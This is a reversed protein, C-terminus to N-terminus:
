PARGGEPSGGTGQAREMDLAQEALALRMRKSKAREKLVKFVIPLVSVFVIFVVIVHLYKDIQPITRGLYYGGLLFSWIWLLAGVVNYVAFKFYGMGAVGAVTPAFTRVIPIFRALIIAKGGHEEYFERARLLHSRRFLFSEKREYLFVGARKGIAYGTADGIIAAATLIGGLTWVHLNMEPRASVLGAALLLSDGPLFFGVLLGTEAFIIATLGVYGVTAVLGQLDQLYSWATRLGEVLFDMM